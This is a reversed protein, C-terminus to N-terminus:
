KERKASSSLHACLYVVFIIPMQRRRHLMSLLLESSVENQQQHQQQQSHSQPQEQDQDVNQKILPRPLFQEVAQQGYLAYQQGQLLAAENDVSGPTTRVRTQGIQRKSKPEQNAKRTTSNTAPKVADVILLGAFRRWM